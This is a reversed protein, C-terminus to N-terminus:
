VGDKFLILKQCGANFSGILNGVTKFWILEQDGNTNNSGVNLKPRQQILITTKYPGILYFVILFEFEDKVRVNNKIRIHANKRLEEERRKKKRQFKFWERYSSCNIKKRKFLEEKHNINIVTKQHNNKYLVDKAIM